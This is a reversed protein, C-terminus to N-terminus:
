RSRRYVGEANLASSIWNVCSTKGNTGTVAVVSLAASPQDYWLDAVAGLMRSLGNVALAPVNFLTDPCADQAEYVLAAAEKQLAADIFARGDGARGPCAFFVDGA